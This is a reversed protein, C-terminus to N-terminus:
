PHTGVSAQELLTSTRPARLAKPNSTIKAKFVQRNPPGAEAKM